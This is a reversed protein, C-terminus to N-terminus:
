GKIGTRVAGQSVRGQIIENSKPPHVYTGPCSCTTTEPCLTAEVLLRFGASHRVCGTSIRTKDDETDGSDFGRVPPDPSSSCLGGIRWLKHCLMSRIYQMRCQPSIGAGSSRGSPGALPIVDALKVM